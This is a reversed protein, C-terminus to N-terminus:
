MTRSAHGGPKASFPGAVTVMGDLVQVPLAPLPLPAPGAVVLGGRVPDYESGHCPCRLRSTQAVWGSVVCAAHPCIATFAVLKDALDEAAGDPVRLLLVQNFRAGDRVLGTNRDMPWVLVPAAGQRIADSRLAKGGPDTVPVFEDGPQPGATRDPMAAGPLTVAAAATLGFNLVSRRSVIMHMRGLGDYLATVLRASGRAFSLRADIGSAPRISRTALGANVYWGPVTM